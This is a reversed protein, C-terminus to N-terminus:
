RPIPPSTRPYSAGVLGGDGGSTTSGRRSPHAVRATGGSDSSPPWPSHGKEFAPVKGDEPTPKAFSPTVLQAAWIVHIHPEPAEICVMLPPSEGLLLTALRELRLQPTTNAGDELLTFIFPFGPISPDLATAAVGAITNCTRQIPALTPAPQFTPIGRAQEPATPFAPAPDPPFIKRGEKQYWNHGSPPGANASAQASGLAEDEIPDAM